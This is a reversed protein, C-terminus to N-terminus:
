KRGREKMMMKFHKKMGMMKPANERWIKQQDPTLIQYVDLLHNAVAVSIADRSKNIQEVAAIVDNREFNGKVKLEQLGLRSKQLDAKLDVMKKAFEVRMDAIKEKQQDTLNLKKMLDFKHMRNMQMMRNAMPHEKGQMQMPQSYGLGTILFLGLFLVIAFMSKKM